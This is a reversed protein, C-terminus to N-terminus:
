LLKSYLKGLLFIFVCLVIFLFILAKDNEEPSLNNQHKVVETTETTVPQRIIVPQVFTLINKM